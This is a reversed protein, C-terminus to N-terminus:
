PEECVSSCGGNKRTLFLCKGVYMEGLEYLYTVIRWIGSFHLIKGSLLVVGFLCRLDCFLM